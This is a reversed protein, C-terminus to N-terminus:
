GERAQRRAADIASTYAALEEATTMGGDDSVIGGDVVLHGARVGTMRGGQAMLAQAPIGGMPALGHLRASDFCARTSDWDGAAVHVASFGAMALGDYLARIDGDSHFAVPGDFAGALSRYSPMLAELAFDPSVLWGAESALEDGVVLADAGVAVGARVETLADHLAEALAGALEGPESASQMLAESWGVRDAVRGLVGDVAWLAAVDAGHLAEVAAEAWPASAPVLAIDLQLEGAVAALIQAPDTDPGQWTLVRLADVPVWMIGSGVDVSDGSIIAVARLRGMLCGEDRVCGM